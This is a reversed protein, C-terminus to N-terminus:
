KAYFILMSLLAEENGTNAYSHVVDAKFRISDGKCLSYAVDGVTIDVAGGFVTVYEETGALHPEAQLFGTPAIEIRYTEFLHQEDFTFSPYNVYKGGDEVIPTIDKSQVVTTQGRSQEILSTFSVKYGNAIRWLVSLTPNVDGKEIQALMSRSVGTIRAASDLTLNKRGRIQKINQSVASNIDM